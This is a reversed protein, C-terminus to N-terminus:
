ASPVALIVTVPRTHTGNGNLTDFFDKRGASCTKLVEYFNQFSLIKIARPFLRLAAPPPDLSDTEL